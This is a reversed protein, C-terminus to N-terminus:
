VLSGSTEKFVVCRVKPDSYYHNSLSKKLFMSSTRAWNLGTSVMSWEVPDEHTDWSHCKSKLPGFVGDEPCALAEMKQVCMTHLAM